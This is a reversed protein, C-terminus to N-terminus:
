IRHLKATWIPVGLLKNCFIANIIYNEKWPEYIRWVEAGYLIRAEELTEFVKESTRV